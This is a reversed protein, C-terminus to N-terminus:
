EGDRVEEDSLEELVVRYLVRPSVTLHMAGAFEMAAQEEYGLADSGRLVMEPEDWDMSVARM